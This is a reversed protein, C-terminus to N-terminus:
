RQLSRDVAGGGQRDGIGRALDLTARGRPTMLGAHEGVPQEIGGEGSDSRDTPLVELAAKVRLLMPLAPLLGNQVKTM